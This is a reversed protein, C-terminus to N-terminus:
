KHCIRYWRVIRAVIAVLGFPVITIDIYIWYPPLIFFKLVLIAALMAMIIAFISLLTLNNEKHRRKEVETIITEKNLENVIKEMKRVIKKM